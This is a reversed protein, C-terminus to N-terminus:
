GVMAIWLRISASGTNANWEKSFLGGSGNQRVRSSCARVFCALKIHCGHRARESFMSECGDGTRQEFVSVCGYGVTERDIFTHSGLLIDLRVIKSLNPAVSPVRELFLM